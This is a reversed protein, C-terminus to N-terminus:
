PRSPPRDFLKEMAADKEVGLERSKFYHRRALELAPPEEELYLVALNYHADANGPDLEVARRLADQAADMWGLRAAAAGLFNRARADRPAHLVAQAFSAFAAEDEGLEMRVMGLALWAPATSLRQGLARELLVVAEGHDGSRYAVMGLNVLASLNNEDVELVRTYAKRATELDGQALAADGEAATAAVVTPVLPAEARASFFAPCAALVVVLAARVVTM